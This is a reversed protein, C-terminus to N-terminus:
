VMKQGVMFFLPYNRETGDEFRKMNEYCIKWSLINFGYKNLKETLENRRFGNHGNFGDGHFSGDEEVLDILCLYGSPNLMKKFNEFIKDIDLIHHLVLLLYIIDFKKDTNKGKSLDLLIPTMNNIKENQIKQKLVKIMGQSNDMLTIHKIYQQLYFSLLGTGCGYELGTKKDLDPILKVIEDAVIIARERRRPENDWTQALEDFNEMRTEGQKIMYQKIDLSELM